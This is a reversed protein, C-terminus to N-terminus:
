QSAIADPLRASLRSDIESWMKVPSPSVAASRCSLKRSIISTASSVADCNAQDRSCFFSLPEAGEAAAGSLFVRSSIGDDCEQGRKENKGPTDARFATSAFSWEM